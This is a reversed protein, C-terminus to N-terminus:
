GLALFPSFEDSGTPRQANLKRPAGPMPLRYCPDRLKRGRGREPLSGPSRGSITPHLRVKTQYVTWRDRRTGMWCRLHDPLADRIALTRRRSPVRFGGSVTHPMLFHDARPPAAQAGVRASWTSMMSWGARRWCKMETTEHRADTLIWANPM